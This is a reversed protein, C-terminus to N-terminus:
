RWCDFVKSQEEVCRAIRRGKGIGELGQYEGASHAYEAM